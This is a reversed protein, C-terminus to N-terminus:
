AAIDVFYPASVTRLKASIAAYRIELSNSQRHFCRLAYKKGGAVISYTLAFGGCMALPMGLGTTEVHGGALLPDTLALKPNQLAEQYQELSPYAV